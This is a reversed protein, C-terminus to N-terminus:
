EEHEDRRKEQHEAEKDLKKQLADAKDTEKQVAEKKEKEIKEKAEKKDKEDQVKKALRLRLTDFMLTIGDRVREWKLLMDHFHPHDAKSNHSSPAFIPFFLSRPHHHHEPHHTPPYAISELQSGIEGVDGLFGAMTARAVDDGGDIDAGPLDQANAAQNKVFGPGASLAEKLENLNKHHPGVHRNTKIEM